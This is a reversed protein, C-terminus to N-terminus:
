KLLIVRDHDADQVDRGIREGVSAAVGIQIRRDPVADRHM